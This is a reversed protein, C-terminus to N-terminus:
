KEIKVTYTQRLKKYFEQANKEQMKQLFLVKVREKVSEFSPLAGQEKKIIYVFHLGYGSRIPGQWEQVLLTSLKYAFGRGFSRQIDITSASTSFFPLSINEGMKDIDKGDKIAKKISALQVELQKKEKNASLYIQKFTLHEDGRFQEQHSRFYARLEEETPEYLSSIDTSLFEFKQALRRHIILDDKDLGIKLAERYMMESYIESELKEKFEKQTPPRMHKKQWRLKMQEQQAKSIVITNEDYSDSNLFSYLIFISAGLVLFHLLPERLLNKM